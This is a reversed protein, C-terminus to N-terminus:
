DGCRRSYGASAGNATFENEFLARATEALATAQDHLHDVHGAQQRRLSTVTGLAAVLETREVM